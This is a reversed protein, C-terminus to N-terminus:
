AIRYSSLIVMRFVPKVVKPCRVKVFSKQHADPQNKFVRVDMHRRDELGYDEGQFM